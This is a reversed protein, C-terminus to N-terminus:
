GNILNQIITYETINSPTETPMMNNVVITRGDATQVTIRLLCVHRPAIPDLNTVKIKISCEDGVPGYKSDEVIVFADQHGEIPILSATWTAWKPTDIKFRCIATVDTNSYLIVKGEAKIDDEVTGEVWSLRMSASVQESFDIEEEVPLWDQVSCHLIIEKDKFQLNLDYKKGADWAAIEQLQVVKSENEKTLTVNGNNDTEIYDYVVTITAASLTETAKFDDKTHPWMLLYDDSVPSISMSLPLPENNTVKNFNFTGFSSVDSYSVIPEYGDVSYDISASRSNKLGSITVSRLKIINTSTNQATIKFATFLHKFEMSVPDFGEEAPVRPTINSYMFDFQPTGQGLTTTPITLTHNATDFGFGEGFFGQVTIAPTENNDKVMWGFFKHTGAETWEYRPAAANPDTANIFPWVTGTGTAGTSEATAGPIYYETAPTPNDVGEPATYYDYVVIQNGESMFTGADLLAKTESFTGKNLARNSGEEVANLLILHKPQNDDELSKNCAVSTLMAAAAIFIYRFIGKM